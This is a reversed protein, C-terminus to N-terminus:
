SFQTAAAGLWGEVSPRRRPDRCGADRRPSSRLIFTKRRSYRPMVPVLNPHPAVLAPRDDGIIGVPRTVGARGANDPRL